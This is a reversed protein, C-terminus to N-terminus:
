PLGSTICLGFRGGSAQTFLKLITEVLLHLLFISVIVICLHCLSKRPFGEWPSAPFVVPTSWGTWSLKVIILRPVSDERSGRSIVVYKEGNGVPLLLLLWLLYSVVFVSIDYNRDEEAILLSIRFRLDLCCSIQYVLLCILEWCVSWFDSWESVTQGGLSNTEWFQETSFSCCDSSIFSNEFRFRRRGLHWFTYGSQLVWLLSRAWWTQFLSLCM